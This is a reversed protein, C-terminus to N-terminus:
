AHGGTVSVNELKVDGDLHQGDLHFGDRATLHVNGEGHFRETKGNYTLTDCSLISGNSTYAHVGGTMVVSKDREAIHAKPADAITTKGTKDVFTVHPQEFTGTAQNTGFREAVSSLARITYAKRGHLTEVIRIYQGNGGHTEVRIPVQTASPRPAPSRAAGPAPSAGAGGPPAQPVCGAALLALLAALRASRM